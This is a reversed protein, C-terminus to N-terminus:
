VKFHTILKWDSVVIKIKIWIIDHFTLQLEHSAHIVYCIIQFDKKTAFGSQLQFLELSCGWKCSFFSVQLKIYIANCDFPTTSLM